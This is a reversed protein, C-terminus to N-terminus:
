PGIHVYAAWLAPNAPFERRLATLAVHLGVAPDDHHRLLEPYVHRAVYWADDDGVRWLTGIVHRFGALQFAAAVHVSEDLLRFGTMANACSSLYALYAGRIDLGTLDRVTLPADHLHLASGSPDALNTTAHCAFHAWGVSSLARIVANRTAAGDRLVLEARLQAAAFEAEAVAHRVPPLTTNPVDTVGVALACGPPPLPRSRAAHLARITPAYSSVVHEMVTPGDRHGAAHLPLLSLPGAPVWWVRTVGDLDDIVPWAVRDWLEALIATMREGTNWDNAAVASLLRAALEAGQDLTLDRLPVQRVDGASLVFADCRYRSANVLIVAEGPATAALEGAARPQLFDRMPDHSRIRALLAPWRASAQRRAAVPDPQRTPGAPPEDAVTLMAALSTGSGLLNRLTTFDQAADPDHERLWALESRYDLDQGLLLGRAQELVIAAASAGDLEAAVAAADCALGDFHGLEALTSDRRLARDAVLPLLGVAASYADQAEALDGAAAALRGHWRAAAARYLPTATELDTCQAFMSVAEARAAEDGTLRHVAALAQGVNFLAGGLVPDTVPSRTVAARGLEIAENITAASQTLEYDATLASVLNARFGPLGPHSDPAQKIAARGHEIAADLDARAAAAEYRRFCALALAALYTPHDASGPPSLQVSERASAVAADIDSPRGTAEFRRLLLASLNALRQTRVAVAQPRLEAAAQVLSIAESLDALERAHEYRVRLANGLSALLRPRLSHDAAPHAVAERALGIAEGLEAEAGTAGHLRLLAMSLQSLYRPRHPHAAPTARVARRALRIALRLDTERGTAEFRRRFLTGLDAVRGIAADGGNPALRVASRAASVAADLDGLNGTRGLQLALNGLVEARRAPSLDMALAGRLHGIAQATLTADGRIRGATHLAAALNVLAVVRDPQDAPWRALAQQGCAMSEALDAENGALEFRSYLLGALNAAAAPSPQAGCPKGPSDGEDSPQGGDAHRALGSFIEIAEDLVGPDALRQYQARLLVGLRTAIAPYRGDGHAALTLAVRTAQGAALLAGPEGSQQYRAQEVSSLTVLLDIRYPADDAADAVARRSLAAAEALDDDADSASLALALNSMIAPQDPDGDPLLDLAARLLRVADAQDASTGDPRGRRTLDAALLLLLALHQARLGDTPAARLLAEAAEGRAQRPVSLSAATGARLAALYQYGHV